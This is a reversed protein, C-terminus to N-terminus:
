SSMQQFNRCFGGDCLTCSLFVSIQDGGVEVYCCYFDTAINDKYKWYFVDVSNSVSKWVWYSKHVILELLLKAALVLSKTSTNVPLTFFREM